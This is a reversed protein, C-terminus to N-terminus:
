KKAGREKLITLIQAVTRHMERVKVKKSTVGTSKIKRKEIGLEFRVEGLKAELDPSSLARLDRIHM